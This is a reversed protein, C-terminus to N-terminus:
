GIEKGAETAHILKMVEKRFDFPSLKLKSAPLDFFEENFYLRVALEGYETRYVSVRSFDTWKHKMEEGRGKKLVFVENDYTFVMHYRHKYLRWGLAIAVIVNLALILFRWPDTLIERPSLFVIVAQIAFVIIISKSLNYLQIPSHEHRQSM